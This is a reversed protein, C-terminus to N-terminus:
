FCEITLEGLGPSVRLYFKEKSTTYDESYYTDGRKYLYSDINKESLFSWGGFKLKIGIDRPLQINSEGIDLDVKAMCNNVLDGTFDVKMEGIGGNIDAKKFRANGLKSCTLEGVRTKIGLFDMIELNPENFSIDIEGAWNNIMFEKLRLGGIDMFVEGAKVRTDFFIEVDAPLKLELEAVDNNDYKTFLGKHDLIIRLRNSEKDYRIIGRFDDKTYEMFVVARKNKNSKTINVEGADIDIIVEFPKKDSIEYEKEITRVEWDQASAHSIFCFQVLFIVFISIKKM